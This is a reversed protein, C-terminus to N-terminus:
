LGMFGASENFKLVRDLHEQLERRIENTGEQLIHDLVPNLNCHSAITNYSVFQRNITKDFCKMWEAGALRSRGFFKLFIQSHINEIRYIRPIETQHIFYRPSPGHDASIMQIIGIKESVLKRLEENSTNIKHSNLKRLSEDLVPIFFYKSSRYKDIQRLFRVVQEWQKWKTADLALEYFKKSVEEPRSGIYRAAFFEQVSQHLFEIQGGENQLLCTIKQIDELFASADCSLQQASVSAAALEVARDKSISSPGDAKTKYCFAEFVQQIERDSLKTRRRREYGSKARDHRVLLIQFLEDYFEHFDTPIRQNARYVITLLTALLPTSALKAVSNSNLLATAIREALPRDKSLIKQFFGPLDQADLPALPVVEFLPSNELSSNPRTTVVIRVSPYRVALADITAAFEEARSPDVEDFGDLLISIKGQLAFFHFLQPSTSTDTLDIFAQQIYSDLSKLPPARRLEVFVPITKGARIEKGLLHRLLISKGQGVVGSIVTHNSQLEDLKTIQINGNKTTIKAPHYFSSITISRDVNWITRVRQSSNLKTYIRKLSYNTRLKSLVEKTQETAAEMASDIPKRLLALALSIDPM